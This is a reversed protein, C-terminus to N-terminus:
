FNNQFHETGTYEKNNLISEAIFNAQNNSGVAPIYTGMFNEAKGTSIVCVMNGTTFDRQYISIIKDTGSNITAIRDILGIEEAANNDGIKMDPIQMQLFSGNYINKVNVNRKEFTLRFAKSSLTNKVMSIDRDVDNNIMVDTAKCMDYVDKVIQSTNEKILTDIEGSLTKQLGKEQIIILISILLVPIIAVITSLGAIKQSIKLKM